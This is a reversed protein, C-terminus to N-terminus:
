DVLNWEQGRKAFEAMLKLGVTTMTGPDLCSIAKALAAMYGAKFAEIEDAPANMSLAEEILQDITEMGKITM